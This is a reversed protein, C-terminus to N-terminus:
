ALAQTDLLVDFSTFFFSSLNVSLIVSTYLLVFSYTVRTWSSAHLLFYVFSYCLLSLM